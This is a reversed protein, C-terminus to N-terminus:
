RNLRPYRTWGTSRNWRLVDNTAFWTSLWADTITWPLEPADAPLVGHRYDDNVGRTVNFGAGEHSVHIALHSEAGARDLKRINDVRTPDNVFETLWDPVGDATGGWVGGIALGVDITHPGRRESTQGGQIHLQALRDIADAIDRNRASSLTDGRIRHSLAQSAAFSDVRHDQLARLLGEAEARLKKWHPVRGHSILTWSSSLSPASWAAFGRDLRAAVRAPDHDSTVEVPAAPRDPYLVKLDPLGNASGDDLQAVPVGLISQLRGRVAEEDVSLLRSM